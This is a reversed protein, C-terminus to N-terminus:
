LPPAGRRERGRERAQARARQSARAVPQHGRVLDLVAHTVDRDALRDLLNVGDQTPFFFACKVSRYLAFWFIKLLVFITAGMQASKMLVFEKSRDMYMPILYKHSDIDFPKHDVKIGSTCAWLLFNNIKLARLEDESITSPSLGQINRPDIQGPTVLGDFLDQVTNTEKKVKVAKRTRVRVAKRKPPDFEGLVPVKPRKPPPTKM